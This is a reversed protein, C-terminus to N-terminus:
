WILKVESESLYVWNVGMVIWYPMFRFSDHILMVPLVAFNLFLVLLANSSSAGCRL